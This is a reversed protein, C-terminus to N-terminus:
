SLADHLSFDVTMVPVRLINRGADGFTGAPVVQFDSCQVVSRLRRGDTEVVRNPVWGAGGSQRRSPSRGGPASHSHGRVASPCSHRRADVVLVKLDPAHTQSHCVRDRCRTLPAGPASGAPAVLLQQATSPRGRAAPRHYTGDSWLVSTRETRSIPKSCTHLIYRALRISCLASHRSPSQPETM